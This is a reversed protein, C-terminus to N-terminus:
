QREMGTLEVVLITLDDAQEAGNVFTEVAEEIRRAITECNQEAKLDISEMLRRSSFEHGKNNMAETVGDSYLIIYQNMEFKETTFDIDKLFGIAPGSKENVFEKRGNGSVVPPNHGANCYSLEGTRTDLFGVFVTMFMSNYDESAVLNNAYKVCEGPPYNMLAASKIAARCVAMFIAAPVGKGSADGLMFCLKTPSVFFFDYFDGGVQRAPLTKGYIDIDNRNPFAPFKQPIISMQIERAIQLENEIKEKERTLMKVNEIYNKLDKSMSNFAQQLALVERTDPGIDFERGLNENITEVNGALRVLSASISGSVMNIVLGLIIIGVIAIIILKNQLAKVEELVIDRPLSLIFQFDSKGEFYLVFVPKGKVPDNKLELVEVNNYKKLRKNNKKKVKDYLEVENKQVPYILAQNNRDKIYIRTGEPLDLTGIFGNFDDVGIEIIVLGTVKNNKKVPSIYAIVKESDDVVSRWGQRVLRTDKLYRNRIESEVAESNNNSHKSYYLIHNKQNTDPMIIISNIYHNKIVTTKFLGKIFNENVQNEQVYSGIYEADMRQKELVDLINSDINETWLSAIELMDNIEFQSSIYYNAMIIVVLLAAVTLWIWIFIKNRLRPM